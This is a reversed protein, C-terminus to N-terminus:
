LQFEKYNNIFGLDIWYIGLTSSMVCMVCIPADCKVEITQKLSFSVSNLMLFSM